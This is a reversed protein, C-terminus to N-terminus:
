WDPLSGLWGVYKFILEAAEFRSDPSLFSCHSRRLLLMQRYAKPIEVRLDYVLLNGEFANEPASVNMEPVKLEVKPTRSLHSLVTRGGGCVCLPKLKNFFNM